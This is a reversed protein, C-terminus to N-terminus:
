KNAAGHGSLRFTVAIDDETEVAQGALLTQTYRWQQVARVTACVPTSISASVPTVTASRVM